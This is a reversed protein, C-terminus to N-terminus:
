GYERTRDSSWRLAVRNPYSAREFGYQDVDTDVTSAEREEATRNEQM